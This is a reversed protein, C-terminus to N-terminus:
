SIYPLPNLELLRITEQLKDGWVLLWDNPNQPSRQMVILKHGAERAYVSHELLNRILEESWNCLISGERDNEDRVLLRLFYDGIPIEQLPCTEDTKQIIQITHVLLYGGDKIVLHLDKGVFTSMFRKMM